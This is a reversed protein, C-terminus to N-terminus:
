LRQEQGSDARALAELADRYGSAAAIALFTRTEASRAFWECTVCDKRLMRHILRELRESGPGTHVARLRRPNGIQIDQMRWRIDDCSSWGIKVASADDGEDLVYVVGPLPASFVGAIKEIWELTQASDSDRIVAGLGDIRSRGVLPIGYRGPTFPVDHARLWEAQERVVRLGTVRHLEGVTLYLRDTARLQQITEAQTLTM